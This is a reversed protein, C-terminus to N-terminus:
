RRGYHVFIQSETQEMGIGRWGQALKQQQASIDGMEITIIDRYTRESPETEHLDKVFVYRLLGGYKEKLAAIIMGQAFKDKLSPINFPAVTACVYRYPHGMDDLKQTILRALLKQLRNGRYAPLVNSIEQYIVKPLESEPLGADLGLHGEGHIPPFLLARFAILEGRDVAGIMLGNGALIYEFDKKGLPSLIKKNELHAIVTEQVKMIQELDQRTLRRISFSRAAQDGEKKLKGEYLNKM